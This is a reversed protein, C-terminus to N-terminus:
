KLRVAHLARMLPSSPSIVRFGGFLNYCHEPAERPQREGLWRRLMEDSAKGPRPMEERWPLTAEEGEESLFHLTRTEDDLRVGWLTGNQAHFTRHPPLTM